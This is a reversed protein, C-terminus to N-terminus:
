FFMQFPRYFPKENKKINQCYNQKMVGACNVCCFIITIRSGRQPQPIRPVSRSVLTAIYGYDHLRERPKQLLIM